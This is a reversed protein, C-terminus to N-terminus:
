RSIECNVKLTIDIVKHDQFVNGHLMRSQYIIKFKPSINEERFSNCNAKELFCISLCLYSHLPEVSSYCSHWSFLPFLVLCPSGDSQSSVEVLELPFEPASIACELRGANHPSPWARKASSQENTEPLQELFLTDEAIVEKSLWQGPVIVTLGQSLYSRLKFASHVRVFSVPPLEWKVMSSM